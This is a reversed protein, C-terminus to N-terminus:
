NENIINKCVFAAILMGGSFTQVATIKGVFLIELVNLIQTAIEKGKRVLAHRVAAIKQRM